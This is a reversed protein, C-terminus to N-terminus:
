FLANYVTKLLVGSITQMIQSPVGSLDIISAIKDHCFWNKFLQDIDTAVAGAVTPSYNAGNFLFSFRPDLIRSRM